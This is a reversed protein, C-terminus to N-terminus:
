VRRLRDNQQVAYAYQEDTLKIDILKVNDSNRDGCGAFLGCCLVLSLMVTVIKKM